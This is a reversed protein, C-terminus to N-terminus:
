SNFVGADRLAQRLYAAVGRGGTKENIIAKEAPTLNLTIKESTREAPDIPPRGGQRKKGKSPKAPATEVAEHEALIGRPKVPETPLATGFTKKKM